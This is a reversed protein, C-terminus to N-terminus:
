QPPKNKKYWFIISLSQKIKERDEIHINGIHGEIRKKSIERINFCACYSSKHLHAHKFNISVSIIGIKTTEKITKLPLIIVTNWRNFSEDSIVICPRKKNLESGINQWLDIEYINRQKPILNPTKKEFHLYLICHFWELFQHLIPQTLENAINQIKQILREISKEM